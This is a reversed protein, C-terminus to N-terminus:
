RSSLSERSAASCSTRITSSLEMRAWAPSSRGIASRTARSRFARWACSTRQFATWSGISEREPESLSEKKPLRWHRGNEVRNGEFLVQQRQYLIEVTRLSRRGSEPFGLDVL